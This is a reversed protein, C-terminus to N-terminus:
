NAYLPNAAVYVTVKGSAAGAPAIQALDFSAERRLTAFHYTFSGGNLKFEVTEGNSVNVSATDPTISVQRQAASAPAASGYPADHVTNTQASAAFSAPLAACLIAARFSKRM